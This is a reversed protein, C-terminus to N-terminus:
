NNSQREQFTYKSINPKAVVSIIYIVGLYINRYPIELNKFQSWIISFLIFKLEMNFRLKVKFFIEHHVCLYLAILVNELDGM